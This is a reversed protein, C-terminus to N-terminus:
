PTPHVYRVESTDQEPWSGAMEQGSARLKATSASIRPVAALTKGSGVDQPMFPYLELELPIPDGPGHPCRYTWISGFAEGWETSPKFLSVTGASYDNGHTGVTLSVRNGGLREFGEVVADDM